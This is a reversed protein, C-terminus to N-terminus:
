RYLQRHYENSQFSNYHCNDNHHNKELGGEGKLCGGSDGSGGSGFGGRLGECGCDGFLVFRDIDSYM